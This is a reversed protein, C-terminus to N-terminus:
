RRIWRVADAILYGPTGNAADLTVFNAGSGLSYKGIWKWSNGGSQQNVTVVRAGGTTSVTYRATTARNTGPTYWAYVDYTGAPLLVNFAAKDAAAGDAKRYEYSGSYPTGYKGVQWNASATYGASTNDVVRYSSLVRFQVSLASAAKNGALDQGSVKWYYVGPAAFKGPAISGDWSITQLGMPKAIRPLAVVQKGASDVIIPALITAESLKMQLKYPGYGSATPSTMQPQVTDVWTYGEVPLGPNGESNQYSLRHMYRGNPVIEGASDRGDWGASVTTGSGTLTRVVKGAPDVLNLTWQVSQSFAAKYHTSEQIGDNNPSIRAPTRSFSTVTPAPVGSELVTVQTTGTQSVLTSVGEKNLGVWWNSTGARAVKIFGTVTRTEGALLPTGLGFRYPGPNGTPNNSQDVLLRYKGTVKPFMLDDWDQSELYITQPNPGQTEMLGTGANHLVVDVRLNDGTYLGVPSFEVSQIMPKPVPRYGMLTAVNRRIEDFRNYLYPGPDVHTNDCPVTSRSTDIHALINPLDAKPDINRKMFIGRGQPDIGHMDFQWAILNEFSRLMANSPEVKAHDGLAAIGVTGFNYCLAHGAVVNKGGARGEYIRGQEDILYNYGIDGWGRTVAHYYYISRVTRAPDPDNNATITDHLVAKTVQLYERGWIENGQKDFRYSEDAGWGARSIITPRSVGMAQFGGTSAAQAYQATPGASADIYTLTVDSVRPWEGQPSPSTRVSYQAYQATDGVVLGGFMRGNKDRKEDGHNEHVERWPRWTKGDASFRVFIEVQAGEPVRAKWNPGVASFPHTAKHVESLYSTGQKGAQMTRMTSGTRTAVTEKWESAVTKNKPAAEAAGVPMATLAIILALLTTLLRSM